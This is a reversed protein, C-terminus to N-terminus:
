LGKVFLKEEVQKGNGNQSQNPFVFQRPIGPKDKDFSVVLNASGEMYNVSEVKVKTVHAGIRDELDKRLSTSNGIRLLDLREYKIKRREVQKNFISQELIALFIIMGANLFVIELPGIAGQFTSNIFGMGILILLYTMDKIHLQESRYRMMAFVAFLGFGSGVSLEVNTLITCLSFVIMNFAFLTFAFEKNESNKKYILQILITAMGINFIFRLALGAFVSPNFNSFQFVNFLEM